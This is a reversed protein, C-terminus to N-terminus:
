KLDDFILMQMKTAASSICIRLPVFHTESYAAGKLGVQGGTNSRILTARVGKATHYCGLGRFHIATAHSRARTSINKGNTMVINSDLIVQKSIM